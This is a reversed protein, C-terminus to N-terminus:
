FENFTAPYTFFSFHIINIAFHMVIASGLSKSRLYIVGYLLGALFILALRKEAGIGTHFHAIMFILASFFVALYSSYQTPLYKSLKEQIVLRFFAEEAVCTVFLNFFFFALTLEGFKLDPEAGMLWCLGFFALLGLAILKADLLSIGWNIGRNFALLIAFAALAKDLNANLQFPLASKGFSDSSFVVANHFGPIKHMAFLLSFIALSSFAMKPFIPKTHHREILCYASFYLLIIFPISIDSIAELFWAISVLGLILLLPILPKQGKGFFIIQLLLCGYIAFVIVTNHSIVIDM